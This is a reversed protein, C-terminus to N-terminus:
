NLLKEETNGNGIEWQLGERKKEGATVYCKQVTQIYAEYFQLILYECSKFSKLVLPNAPSPVAWFQM